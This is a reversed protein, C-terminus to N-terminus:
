SKISRNVVLVSTEILQVATQRLSPLIDRGTFTQARGDNYVRKVSILQGGPSSFKFVLNYKDAGKSALTIEMYEPLIEEKAEHLSILIGSKGDKAFYSLTRNVYEQSNKVEMPLGARNKRIADSLWLLKTADDWDGKAIAASDETKSTGLAEANQDVFDKLAGGIRENVQAMLDGIRILEPKELSDVEMAGRLKAYVFLDGRGEEVEKSLAQVEKEVVWKLFDAKQDLTLESMNVIQSPPHAGMLQAFDSVQQETAFGKQVLRSLPSSTWEVPQSRIRYLYTKWANVHPGRAASAALSLDSAAITVLLCLLTAKFFSPAFSANPSRM